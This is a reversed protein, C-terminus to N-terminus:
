GWQTEAIRRHDTIECYDLRYGLWPEYEGRPKTTFVSGTTGVKSDVCLAYGVVPYWEGDVMVDDGRQLGGEINM